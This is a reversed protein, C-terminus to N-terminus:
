NGPNRIKENQEEKIGNYEECENDGYEVSCPHDSLQCWYYGEDGVRIKKLYYCEIGQAILQENM